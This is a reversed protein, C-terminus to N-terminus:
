EKKPLVGGGNGGLFFFRGACRAVVMCCLATPGACGLLFGAWSEVGIGRDV